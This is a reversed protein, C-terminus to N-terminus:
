PNVFLDVGNTWEAIGTVADITGSQYALHLGILNGANPIAITRQAQGSAPLVAVDITVGSVLLRGVIPAVFRPPALFSTGVFDVVLSGPTGDVTHLFRGGLGFENGSASRDGLLRVTPADIWLLRVSLPSSATQATAATSAGSGPGGFSCVMRPLDNRPPNSTTAMTAFQATAPDVIKRVEILLGSVGDHVFINQLPISTWGSSDYAIRLGTGRLLATPLPTINNAFTPSLSTATTSMADIELSRYDLALTGQCHVEIGVLAAGPGPLEQDRILLQTRSETFDTPGLCGFPSVDGNDGAITEQPHATRHVQQCTLAAAFVFFAISAHM